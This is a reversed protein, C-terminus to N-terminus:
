RSVSVQFGSLSQTASKFHDIEFSEEDIRCNKIFVSESYFWTGYIYGKRRLERSSFSIEENYPSLNPRVFLKVTEPLGIKTLKKKKMDRLNKQWYKQACSETSLVFLQKSHNGLAIAHRSTLKM